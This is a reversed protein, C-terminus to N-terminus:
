DRIVSRFSEGRRYPPCQIVDGGTEPPVNEDLGIPGTSCALHSRGRRGTRLQNFTEEFHEKAARAIRECDQRAATRKLYRGPTGQGPCTPLTPELPSAKSRETALEALSDANLRAVLRPEITILERHAIQEVARLPTVEAADEWRLFTGALPHDGAPLEVV